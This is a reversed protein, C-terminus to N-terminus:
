LKKGKMAAVKAVMEQNVGCFRQHRDKVWALWQDVDGGHNLAVADPDIGYSKLPGHITQNASVQTVSRVHVTMHGTESNTEYRVLEIDM